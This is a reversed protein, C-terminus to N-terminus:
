WGEWRRVEYHDLGVEGKALEFSQEIRWRQGAVQVLARLTTGRPAFVVYYALDTADSLSRRVLLWHEWRRDEDSLQLRALPVRVWDYLRPGKAGDGASLRRWMGPAIHAAIVDARPQGWQQRGDEGELVAWLPEDKAVALM